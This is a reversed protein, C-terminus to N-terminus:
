RVPPGQPRPSAGTMAFIYPAYRGNPYRALYREAEDRAAGIKQLNILGDILLADREEARTSDPFSRRAQYALDVALAPNQKLNERIKQMLLADDQSEAVPLRPTSATTPSTDSSGEPAPTTEVQSPSPVTRASGLSLYLGVAATVMVAAVVAYVRRRMAIM